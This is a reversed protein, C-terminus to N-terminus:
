NLGGFDRVLMDDSHYETSRVSIINLKLKSSVCATKRHWPM